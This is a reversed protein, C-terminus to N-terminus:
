IYYSFRGIFFHPKWEEPGAVMLLRTRSDVVASHYDIQDSLPLDNMYWEHRDVMEGLLSLHEKENYIMFDLPATGKFVYCRYGYNKVAESLEIFNQVSIIKSPISLMSLLVASYSFSTVTEFFRWLLPRFGKIDYNALTSQQVLSGLFRLFLFIYTEKYRFFYQFLLPMFLLITLILTWTIFDFPRVFALSTSVPGPKKIAFTFNDTLYVTSFDVVSARQKTIVIYSDAIDAAGTQIKGIMGTWNGHPLLRGWERDEAIVLEFPMKMSELITGLFRGQIGSFEFRGDAKRHVKLDKMPNVSVRLFSPCQM